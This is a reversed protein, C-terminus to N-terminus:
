NVVFRDFLPEITPASGDQPMTSCSMLSVAYSSGTKNVEIWTAKDVGSCWSGSNVYANRGTPFHHQQVTARHTHGMLVLKANFRIFPADAVPALNGLEAPIALASEIAGNRHEYENFLDKYADRIHGVKVPAGGWLDDPMLIDADQSVGAKAAFQM